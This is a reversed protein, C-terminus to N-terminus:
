EPGIFRDRDKALADALFRLVARVRANGRLDAHTLLWLAFGFDRPAQARRLQPHADGNFCLKFGVGVGAALLAAMALSTNVRVRVRDAPVNAAIWQETAVQRWPEDWGVWDLSTVDVPAPQDRLYAESGYVALRVPAIRRGILHAPPEKALRLALDAQRHTLDVFGNDVMVQLEIRPYRKSLAALPRAAPAVAFDPMSLRVTGSLNEDRGQLRREADAVRDEVEAAVGLLEEGADTLQLGSPSRDFLRVGTRAELQVLRRSVTSQNLGLQLAGGRTSGSRAMALFLRLDDWNDMHHVM